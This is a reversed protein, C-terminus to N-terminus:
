EIVGSPPNAHHTPPIIFGQYTVDNWPPNIVMTVPLIVLNAVSLAPDVIAGRFGKDVDATTEFVRGNPGAVVDGNAYYVTSRDWERAQMGEDVVLPADNITAVPAKGVRQCGAGVLALAGLAFLAPRTLAALNRTSCM